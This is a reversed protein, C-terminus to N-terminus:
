DVSPTLLQKNLVTRIQEWREAAKQQFRKAMKGKVFADKHEHLATYHVSAVEISSSEFAKSVAEVNKLTDDIFVMHTIRQSHPLDRNYRHIFCQLNEGKNQGALYLVGNRYSIARTNTCNMYPSELPEDLFQPANAAFNELLSEGKQVNLATFQQETASINENGRATAVMTKVGMNQLGLLVNPVDKQTYNMKNMAFLLASIELLEGFSDAVKHKENTGILEEQWSFWAAGGLYQCTKPSSLDPCPMATLTDDNDSVLLTNQPVGWEAVKTEVISFDDATIQTSASTASFSVLLGALLSFKRLIM